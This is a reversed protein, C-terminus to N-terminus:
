GFVTKGSVHDRGTFLFHRERESAVREREGCREGGGRKIRRRGSQARLTVTDIAHDVPQLVDIRQSGPGAITWSRQQEPASFGWRWREQEWSLSKKISLRSTRVWYIM